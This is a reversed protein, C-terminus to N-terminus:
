CRNVLHHCISVVFRVCQTVLGIWKSGPKDRYIPTATNIYGVSKAVLRELEWEIEMKSSEVKKELGVRKSEKEM